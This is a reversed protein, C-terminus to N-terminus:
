LPIEVFTQRSLAFVNENLYNSLFCFVNNNTLAVHCFIELFDNEYRSIQKMIM